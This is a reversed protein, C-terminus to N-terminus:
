DPLSEGFLLRSAWENRFRGTPDIGSCVSQFETLHPYLTVVTKPDIPCYKGWHPRAEFLVTTTRALHEAFRFFGERESPRACSVISIAYYDEDDSSAMSMLTDDPLVRRVCIPYHHTYTGVCEALPELLGIDQLSTQTAPSLANPEGDFHRLLEEVFSIAGPLRSRKVFVEIEIHVFLEHEMILMDSSKDTVKWGRVVTWPMLRRFFFKVGRKTRLWRTLLLLVLHMGLDFTLFFYLRYLPALWSRPAAVERRHQGYFHWLWPILYFQQLPHESEAALVSDLTTHRRFHEEVRYQPRAWLGVSAIVGLCGLSCRAARLEPGDSITRIVPEGTEADYPAIRVEDIYHSLSSKGSGHTGTSIAGAIAQETILGVSPLTMEAQRELESLVRKIQCGAGIAAWVRGDRQETQVSNLHRLDLLVDDSRAAESWAHLRGVVRMRRGVYQKMAQLLEEESRPTVIVQPQFTINRGFNVITRLLSSM